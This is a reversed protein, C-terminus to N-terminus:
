SARPWLADEELSSSICCDSGISVLSLVRAANLAAGRDRRSVYAAIAFGISYRTCPDYVFLFVFLLVVGCLLAPALLSPISGGSNCGGLCRGGKEAFDFLVPGFDVGLPFAFCCTYFM